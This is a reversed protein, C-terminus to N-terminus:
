VVLCTYYSEFDKLKQKQINERGAYRRNGPPDWIRSFYAIQLSFCCFSPTVNRIYEPTKNSLEFLCCFFFCFHYILVFM